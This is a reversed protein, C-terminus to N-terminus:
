EKALLIRLARQSRRGDQANATKSFWYYAEEDSMARIHEAIDSMRSPKRLPKM